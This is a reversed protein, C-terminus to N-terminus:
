NFLIILKFSVNLKEDVVSIRTLESMGDITKCMECDIGFM